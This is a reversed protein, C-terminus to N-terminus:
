SSAEPLALFAEAAAWACGPLHQFAQPGAPTGAIAWEADARCCPCVEGWQDYSKASALVAKLHAVAVRGTTDDM